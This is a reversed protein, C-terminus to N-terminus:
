LLHFCSVGDRERSQSQTFAEQSATGASITFSDNVEHAIVADRSPLSSSSIWQKLSAWGHSSPLLTMASLIFCKTVSGRILSIVGEGWMVTRRIVIDLKVMFKICFLFAIITRVFCLRTLMIFLIIISVVNNRWGLHICCQKKLQKKCEDCLILLSLISTIISDRWDITQTTEPWGLLDLMYVCPVELCVGLKRKGICSLNYGRQTKSFILNDQFLIRCMASSPVIRWWPLLTSM